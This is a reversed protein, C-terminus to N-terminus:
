VMTLALRDSSMPDTKVSIWLDESNQGGNKKKKKKESKVNTVSTEGKGCCCRRCCCCHCCVLVSTFLVVLPLTLLVVLCVTNYIGQDHKSSAVSWMNNFFQLIAETM